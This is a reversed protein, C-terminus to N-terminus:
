RRIQSEEVVRIRVKRVASGGSDVFLGEDSVGEVRDSESLYVLEPPLDSDQSVSDVPVLHRPISFFAGLGLAAALGGVGLWRASRRFDFRATKSDGALGELMDEMREQAGDSIAVPMLRSLAKEMENLNQDAKHM